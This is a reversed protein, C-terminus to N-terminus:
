ARVGGAEVADSEAEASAAARQEKAVQTIAGLGNLKTDSMFRSRTALLVLPFTVM